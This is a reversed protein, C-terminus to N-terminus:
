VILGRFDKPSGDFGPFIRQLGEAGVLVGEKKLDGHLRVMFGIHAKLDAQAWNAVDWDGSKGRPSNMMLMFKM